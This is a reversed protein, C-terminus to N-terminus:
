ENGYIGFYFRNEEPDIAFRVSQLCGQFGLYSPAGPPWFIEEGENPIFVTVNITLEQGQDAVFTLDHRELAGELTEGRFTHKYSGHASPSLLRAIEPHCLFNISGTDLAAKIEFGAVRVRCYIRENGGRNDSSDIEYEASGTAFQQQDPFFLM